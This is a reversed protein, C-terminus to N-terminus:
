GPASANVPRTCTQSMPAGWRSSASSPRV